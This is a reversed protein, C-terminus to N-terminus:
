KSNLNNIINQYEYLNSIRKSVCSSKNPRSMPKTHNDHKCHQAPRCVTVKYSVQYYCQIVQSSHNHDYAEQIIIMYVIQHLWQNVYLTDYLSDSSAVSQRVTYTLCFSTLGQAAPTTNIRNRTHKLSFLIVSFDM